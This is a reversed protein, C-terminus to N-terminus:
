KLELKMQEMMLHLTDYHSHLTASQEDHTPQTDLLQQRHVDSVVRLAHFLDIHSLRALRYTMQEAYIDVSSDFTVFTPLQSKPIEWFFITGREIRKDYKKSRPIITISKDNSRVVTGELMTMDPCALVTGIFQNYLGFVDVNNGM